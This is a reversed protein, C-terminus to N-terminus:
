RGEDEESGEGDADLGDELVFDAVKVVVVLEEADRLAFSGEEVARPAFVLRREEVGEAVDANEAGDVGTAACDYPPLEQRAVYRIAAAKYPGAFALVPYAAREAV